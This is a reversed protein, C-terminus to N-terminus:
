PKPHKKFFEWMTSLESILYFWRYNKRLKREVLKGAIEDAGKELPTGVWPLFSLPITLYSVVNRIRNIRQEVGLVELLVRRAFEKDFEVKGEVAENVLKRLDSIRSDKLAKIVGKTNWVRFEPFSVEFLEKVKAVKRQENTSEKGITILKEQYFPLMDYWDHFGVNLVNAIVLNANVYALYEALQTKLHKRYQPERRKSSSALAEKLMRHEIWALGAYGNLRHIYGASQVLEEMEEESLETHEEEFLHRKEDFSRYIEEAFDQWKRLSTQLPRVWDDLRRLDRKLMEDLLQTHENVISDFDELTVFGEDYLAKLMQATEVYARHPQSQLYDFSRQDLVIKDCLLLIAVDPVFGHSSLESMSVPPMRYFISSKGRDELPRHSLGFSTLLIEM